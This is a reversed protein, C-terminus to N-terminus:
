GFLIKACVFAGIWSGTSLVGSVILARKKSTPLQQWLHTSALHMHKGILYGNIVLVLVFLMKLDFLRLSLYAQWNSFAMAIGSIIMTALGYWIIRHSRQLLQADLTKRKGRVWSLGYLDTAIVVCVTISLAILHVWIM